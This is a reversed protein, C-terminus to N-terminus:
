GHGLGERALAVGRDVLLERTAAAGAPDVGQCEALTAIALHDVNGRATAPAFTEGFHVAAIIEIAM